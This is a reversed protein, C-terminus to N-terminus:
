DGNFGYARFQMQYGTFQKIIGLIPAVRILDISGISHKKVYEGLAEELASLICIARNGHMTDVCDQHVLIDVTFTVERIKGGITTPIIRYVDIFMYAGADKVTEEVRKYMFIKKNAIDSVKPKEQELIDKEKYENDTYYLFKTLESHKLLHAHIEALVKNTYGYLAM